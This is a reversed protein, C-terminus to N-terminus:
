CCAGSCMPMTADPDRIEGFRRQVRWLTFLGLPVNVLFIL